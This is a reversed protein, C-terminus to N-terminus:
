AEKSLKRYQKLHQAPCLVQLRQLLVPYKIESKLPLRTCIPPGVPANTIITQPIIFFFISRVSKCCSGNHCTNKKIVIPSKFNPLIIRYIGSGTVVPNVLPMAKTSNEICILSKKPKPTVDIGDLKM